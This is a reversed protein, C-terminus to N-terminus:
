IVSLSLLVYDELYIVSESWRCSEFWHGKWIRLDITSNNTLTLITTKAYTLSTMPHWNSFTLFPWLNSFQSASKCIQFLVYIQSNSVLKLIQFLVYIQPVSTQSTSILCPNSSQVDILPQIDIQTNNINHIASVEIITPLHNGLYFTTM